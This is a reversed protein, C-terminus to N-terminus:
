GFVAAIRQGDYFGDVEIFKRGVDANEEGTVL